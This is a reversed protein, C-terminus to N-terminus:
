IHTRIHKHFSSRQSFKKGCESCAYPHDKNHVGAHRLLNSTSSFRKGCEPCGYPKEGTHGRLHRLHSSSDSFRKGCEFCSFPQEGTHVRMHTQLNGSQSFWKGCESCSFPQEGTHVRMHIQLHSSQSFRKGCESCSFPREGTHLRMHEQLHISQLFLKGCESCCYPKEGTHIRKHKFLSSRDFFHKGCTPCCCLGQGEHGIMHTQLHSVQSFRKGRKSLYPKEVIPTTIHSHKSFNKVCESRHYPEKGTNDERRKKPMHSDSFQKGGELCHYLKKNGHIGGNDKSNLKYKFTGVCQQRIPNLNYVGQSKIADIRTLKVIPQFRPHQSATVLNKTASPLKKRNKDPQKIQPHVQLSSLNDNEQFDEGTQSPCLKKEPRVTNTKSSESPKHAKSDKLSCRRGLSSGLRNLDEDPGMYQPNCDKVKIRNIIKRSRQINTSGKRKNRKESVDDERQYEKQLSKQGAPYMKPMKKKKEEGTQNPCLKKEPRVTNTKSSESPKHAKSDKLSCRRGLSSGLRNLDEDPGMYQPNCDRVKMRNIIKRPRQINTRGKRKNRKESVDEERQCEKQLSKQGAPYMKPMKKKKKTKSSTKPPPQGEKTRPSSIEETMKRDSQLSEYKVNISSEPSSSHRSHSSVLGTVAGDQHGYHLDDEEFSEMNGCNHMETSVCKEENEEKFSVSGLESDEEKIDLSEQKPHVSEWECDEEKVNTTWEEMINLDTECMEEKVDM